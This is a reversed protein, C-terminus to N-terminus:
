FEILNFRYKISSWGHNKIKIYNRLYYLYLKFCSRHFHKSISSIKRFAAHATVFLKQCGSPGM